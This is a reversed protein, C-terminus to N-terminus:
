DVHNHLPPSFVGQEGSCGREVHPGEGRTVKSLGKRGTSWSWLPGESGLLRFNMFGPHMVKLFEAQVWSHEQRQLALTGPLLARRHVSKAHRTKTRSSQPRPPQTDVRHGESPSASPRPCGPLQPIHHGPSIVTSPQGLPAPLRSDTSVSRHVRQHSTRSKSFPNSISRKMFRKQGPVGKRVQSSGLTGTVRGRLGVGM